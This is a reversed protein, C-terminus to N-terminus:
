IDVRDAAVGNIVIDGNVLAWSAAANRVAPQRM